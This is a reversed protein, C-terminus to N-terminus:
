VTVLKMKGQFAYDALPLTGVAILKIYSRGRVDHLHLHAAENRAEKKM